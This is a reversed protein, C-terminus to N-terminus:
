KVLSITPRVLQDQQQKNRLEILTDLLEPKAAIISSLKSVIQEESQLDDQNIVTQEISSLTPVLRALLIEYCKIQAPELPPILLGDANKKLRQMINGAQIKEKWDESIRTRNKRAAM